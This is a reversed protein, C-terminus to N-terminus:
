LEFKWRCYVEDTTREPPCSICVLKIDPNLEKAFAALYGERVQKCPHESLGKSVRIQQTRCVIISFSASGDPENVYEKLQHSLAWSTHRLVKLAGQPGPKSIGLFKSLEKAEVKGMYRWCEADVETAEVMDHRKEIGLFYM